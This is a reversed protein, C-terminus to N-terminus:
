PQNNSISDDGSESRKPAVRRRLSSHEDDDLNVAATVENFTRRLDRLLKGATRAMEISKAPGLALFAVLLIVAMEPLGMGFANLFGEGASPPM